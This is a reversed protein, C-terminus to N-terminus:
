AANIENYKGKMMLPIRAPGIPDRQNSVADSLRAPIGNTLEQIRTHEAVERAFKDSDPMETVKIKATSPARGMAQHQKIRADLDSSQGVYIRGPNKQDEFEYIGCRKTNHVLVCTQGYEDTKAIIFYDHNGDVTFNYVRITADFQVREKAVLTSLEDNAGLFVDGERLDKAEVWYGNLGSELNEHYLTVGNEDVVTRAARELDPEDTVVWFPHSDTTEIVQMTGYEDAITLYDIHDSERVFVATVEKQEVTGTITDYSYVLDGVQIDEINVTVYQVFVNNEDYEVGVVIQTGETFCSQGLNGVLGLGGAVIQIGNELNLGDTYAGAVGRSTTVINSAVNYLKVAKGALQGSCALGGSGAGIAISGGIYTIAQTYGAGYALDTETLTFLGKSEYLGLTAASVTAQAIGNVAGKAHAIMGDKMAYATEGIQGGYYNFCDTVCDLFSKQAPKDLNVNPDNPAVASGLAATPNQGTTPDTHNQFSTYTLANGNNIDITNTLTGSSNYTKREGSIGNGDRTAHTEMRINSDCFAGEGNGNGEFFCCCSIFTIALFSFM